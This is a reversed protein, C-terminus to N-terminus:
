NDEKQSRIDQVTDESLLQDVSCGYFRALEILRTRRPFFTGAEWGYVAADSVGLHAIVDQVTKGAALRASRFGM